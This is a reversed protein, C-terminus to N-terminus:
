KFGKLNKQKQKRDIVSVTVNNWNRINQFWIARLEEYSDMVISHGGDFELKYQHRDYPEYSTQEFWDNKESM